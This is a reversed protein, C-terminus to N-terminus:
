HKLTPLKMAKRSSTVQHAIECAAGGWCNDTLYALVDNMRSLDVAYFVFRGDTRSNVLGANALQALHFSATAPPLRLKASIAGAALGDPGAQVLRRYVWLRTDKGLAGPASVFPPPTTADSTYSRPHALEWVSHAM